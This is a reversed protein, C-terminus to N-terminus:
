QIVEMTTDIVKPNFGKAIADQCLEWTREVSDTHMVYITKM